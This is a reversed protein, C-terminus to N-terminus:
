NIPIDIIIDMAKNYKIREISVEVEKGTGIFRLTRTYTITGDSKKEYNGTNTDELETKKGDLMLYVRSLVVDEETTITIFTEENSDYVKNIEINRGEVDFIENNSDKNIKVKKNADYDAIFGLIKIKLSKLDEPLPDVEKHFKIGNLNTSIGSGHWQLEEGNAILEFEVEEPRIREGSLQDFALDLFNQITGKIVTTTSSALISDFKIKRAEVEVSENLKSKLTHGMAKSRDLTFPIEGIEIKGDQIIEFRWKFKKQYFQPSEFKMIWKIENGEDNEQGQGSSVELNGMFGKITMISSSMTNEDINGDAKKETYFLLLQNDDVMIGDLTVKDGNSFTFSKDIVQGKGNENLEKLSESMIPDFGIIKKSYYALTDFNYGVLIFLIVISAVKLMLKNKYKSRVHKNDLAEMLRKELEDPVNLKDIESKNKSLMEEIERM